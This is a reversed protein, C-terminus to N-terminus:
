VSWVQWVNALGNAPDFVSTQQLSTALKHPPIMRRTGQSDGKHATRMSASAQQSDIRRAGQLHWADDHHEGPLLQCGRDDQLTGGGKHRTKPRGIERWESDLTHTKHTLCNSRHYRTVAINSLVGSLQHPHFVGRQGCHCIRLPGHLWLARTDM